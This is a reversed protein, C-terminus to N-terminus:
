QRSRPKGRTRKAATPSPRARRESTFLKGQLLRVFAHVAPVGAELGFMVTFQSLGMLCAIFMAVVSAADGAAIEGRKVGADVLARAIVPMDNPRSRVEKALEPHRELEAPMGTLFAALTHDNINDLLGLITHGLDFAVGHGSVKADAQMRQEVRELADALASAYLATKSPFYQYIAAATVGAAAAIERNTTLGFGRRAFCDRAARLINARTADSTSGPPRGPRRKAQPM